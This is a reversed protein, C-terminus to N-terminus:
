GCRRVKLWEAFSKDGKSLGTLEEMWAVVKQEEEVSYKADRKAKLQACFPTFNRQIHQAAIPSIRQSICCAAGDCSSVEADLGYIPGQDAM